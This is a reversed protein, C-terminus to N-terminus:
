VYIAMHDAIWDPCLASLIPLLTELLRRCVWTWLLTTRLVQLFSPISPGELSAPILLIYFRRALSDGEAKSVFSM